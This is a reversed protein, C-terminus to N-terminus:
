HSELRYEPLKSDFNIGHSIYNENVLEYVEAATRSIGQMNELHFQVLQSLIKQHDRIHEALMEPEMGGRRMFAEETDFHLSIIKEFASFKEAFSESTTLIGPDDNLRELLTALETHQDDIINWGKRAGHGTWRDHGNKTATDADSGMLAMISAAASELAEIADMVADSATMFSTAQLGRATSSNGALHERLMLSANIHFQRHKFCLDTYEPLHSYIGGTGNLWKGLVCITDDYVFQLNLNSREAGEVILEIHRSFARHWTKAIHFYVM